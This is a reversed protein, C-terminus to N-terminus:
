KMLIMKATRTGEGATLRYFYIGSPLTSGDFRVKHSGATFLQNDAVKAVEQGVLNFVTLTVKEATGLRFEITTEPNFPNPYNQLLSFEAPANPPPTNIGVIKHQNNGTRGANFKFMPWNNDNNALGPTDWAFVTNDWNATFIETDGDGDVDVVSPSSELSSGIVSPTTIPLGSVVNGQYDFAWVMGPKTTTGNTTAVVDPLGDGSVDELAVSGEVWTRNVLQPFGSKLSGDFNFVYVMGSDIAFVTGIAIEPLGDGDMDAVAPAGVTGGKPIVAPFGTILQGQGNFAYVGNVETSQMKMRILIDSFGNLDIDVLSATSNVDYGAEIPFGSCPSGDLNWAYLRGPIGANLNRGSGIVIEPEFDGDIDGIVPGSESNIEIQQPWGPLETGDENFIHIMAPDYTASGSPWFYTAIVVEDKGDNDLDYIAPDSSFYALGLDMPFNSLMGPGYPYAFMYGVDKGFIFEKMGDGDIDGMGGTEISGTSAWTAFVSDGTQPDVGVFRQYPNHPYGPVFTGNYRWGYVYGEINNLVVELKGNNNMDAITTAPGYVGPWGAMTKPWGFQDPLQRTPLPSTHSVAIGSKLIDYGMSHLRAGLGADGKVTVFGNEPFWQVER